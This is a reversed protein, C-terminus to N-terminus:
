AWIRPLTAATTRRYQCCFACLIGGGKGPFPFKQFNYFIKKGKKGPSIRRIKCLLRFGWAGGFTPPFWCFFGGATLSGGTLGSIDSKETCCGDLFVSRESIEPREKEGGGTRRPRVDYWWKWLCFVGRKKQMKGPSKYSVNNKASLKKGKSNMIFKKRWLGHPPFEM